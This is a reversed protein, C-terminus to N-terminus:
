GSSLARKVDTRAFGKGIFLLLCHQQEALAYAFCDGFNLAAPLAGRGWLAYAAAFAETVPEVAFSM